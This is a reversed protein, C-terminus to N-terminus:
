SPPRPLSSPLLFPALSPLLGRSRVLLQLNSAIQDAGHSTHSAYLYMKHEGQFLKNGQSKRPLLPVLTQLEGAPGQGSAAAGEDEQEDRRRKSSM